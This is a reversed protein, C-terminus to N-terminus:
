RDGSRGGLRRLFADDRMLRRRTAVLGALTASDQRAAALRILTRMFVDRQAHSGGLPALGAALGDLPPPPGEEPLLAMIARALPLGIGAAVAAQEGADTSALARAADHAAPRDGVAVLAFLRHLATFVHTAEHRRRRAIDALEAWRGGVPVGDQRLRWLLSAANAFDRNDESRDPRIARDYLALVRATDGQELHFLALHWYLHYAFNNCGSWGQRCGEIWAIGEAPRKTMELVHAVAHVAWPDEPAAAIAARGAAEAAAFDGTEELAFAHCGLIYGYGPHEPAWHPLVATTARRMGAGDGGLFRLMTALKVLLPVLKRRQLHAELVAAAALPGTAVAQGLAAVLATEDETVPQAAALSARAAALTEERGALMLAFGQLAHAAAMTPDARLATEIATGTDRRYALLGETAHAFADHAAESRTAHRFGYRDAVGEPAPRRAPLYTM